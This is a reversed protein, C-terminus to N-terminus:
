ESSARGVETWTDASDYEPQWTDISKDIATWTGTAGGASDWKPTKITALTSIVNESIGYLKLVIYFTNSSTSVISVSTGSLELPVGLAGLTSVVNVSTGSIYHINGIEASTSIVSESTGSLRHEFNIAASTSITNASTGSLKLVEATDITDSITSITNASTGSLKSILGLKGTTSVVSTSTGSLKEVAGLVLAGVASVTNVSTGSLKVTENLVGTTSVASVSTGSLAEEGGLNLVGITSVSNVSTGQLVFQETLVGVTSIKNVSTGSLKIIENITGVTSIVNVSTGSLKQEAATYLTGGTTSVANVSTGSLKLTISLGSITTLTNVSTGSLSLVNNILASTSIACTSTGSFSYINDLFGAVADVYAASTGVIHYALGLSSSTALTCESTGALSIITNIVGVTSVACVSTGSLSFIANSVGTTSVSCVSTGTLKEVEGGAVEEDGYTLLTDWLSNYTAKIWAASRIVFSIRVEDIIGNMVYNNGEYSGIYANANIALNGAHASIDKAGGDASGDLYNQLNGDRDYVASHYHWTDDTITTSTKQYSNAVTPSNTGISSEITNDPHLTVDYWKSPTGDLRKNFLRHAANYADRRFVTEITFDSSGVELGANGVNIYDNSGDFDQGYGIKGTASVPENAGKKTGHNVYLTSDLITSTTADVGHSVLRYNNDWVNVGARGEASLSMAYGPSLSFTTNSCATQDGGLGYIGSGGANSIDIFDGSDTFYIGIFDGATVNIDIIFSQLGAPVAGVDGSVDRATFKAPFNDPDERYFTAFKASAMATNVFLSVNTIKGTYNAPNDMNIYTINGAYQQLRDAPVTGVDIVSGIASIYTTNHNASFYYYLYFDTDVDNDLVWGTKSVHYIAVSESVDFLECEAYLQTVGDATTFAIRDFDEDTEFEAFVEEGQGSDLQVTVPFWTVESDIKTHDGTLKIRKGYTGFLDAM